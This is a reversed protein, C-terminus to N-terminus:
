EKENTSVDQKQSPCVALTLTCGMDPATCGLELYSWSNLKTGVIVSQPITYIVWEHKM